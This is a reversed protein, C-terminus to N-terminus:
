QRNEGCNRLVVFFLWRDSILFINLTLLWARQSAVIGWLLRMFVVRPDIFISRQIYEHTKFINLYMIFILKCAYFRKKPMKLYFPQVLVTKSVKWFSEFHDFFRTRMMYAPFYNLYLKLSKKYPLFVTCIDGPFFNWHTLLGFFTSNPNTLLFIRSRFLTLM